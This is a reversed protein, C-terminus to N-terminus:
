VREFLYGIYLALQQFPSRRFIKYKKIQRHLNILDRQSRLSILTDLTEKNIPTLFNELTKLAHFNRDNM